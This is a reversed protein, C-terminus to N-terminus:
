RPFWTRACSWRSAAALRSDRTLDPAPAPAPRHGEAPGPQDRGRLARGLAVGWTAAGVHVTVCSACAGAANASTGTFHWALALPAFGGCCAQVLAAGWLLQRWRVWGPPRRDDHRLFGGPEAHRTYLFNQLPLQSLAVDARSNPPSADLPGSTTHPFMCVHTNVNRRTADPTRPKRM